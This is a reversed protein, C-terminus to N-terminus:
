KREHRVVYLLAIIEAVIVTWWPISWAPYYRSRMWSANQVWQLRGDHSRFGYAVDGAPVPTFSSDPDTIGEIWWIVSVVLILAITLIWTKRVTWNSM